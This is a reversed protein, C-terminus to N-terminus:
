TIVDMQGSTNLAVFHTSNHVYIKSGPHCGSHTFGWNEKATALKDNTGLVLLFTVYSFYIELFNPCLSRLLNMILFDSIRLFKKPATQSPCTSYGQPLPRSLTACEIFRGTTDGFPSTVPTITDLPSGLVCFVWFSVSIRFM